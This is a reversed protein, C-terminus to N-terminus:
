SHAHKARERDWRRIDHITIRSTIRLQNVHDKDRWPRNKRAAWLLAAGDARSVTVDVYPDWFRLIPPDANCILTCPTHGVRPAIDYAAGPRRKPSEKNNAPAITCLRFTM